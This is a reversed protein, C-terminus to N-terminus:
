LNARLGITFYRGVIDQGAAVPYVLGINTMSPVLDPEAGFLNQVVLYASLDGGEVAFKREINMDV